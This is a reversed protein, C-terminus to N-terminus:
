SPWPSIFFSGQEFLPLLEVIQQSAQKAEARGKMMMLFDRFSRIRREVTNWPAYPSPDSPSFLRESIGNWIQM